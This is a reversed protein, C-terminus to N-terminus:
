GLNLISTLEKPCDIGYSAIEFIGTSSELSDADVQYTFYGSDEQAIEDAYMSYKKFKIAQVFNDELSRNFIYLGVMSMKSLTEFVDKIRSPSLVKVIGEYSAILLSLPGLYKPLLSGCWVVEVGSTKKLNTYTSKPHKGMGFIYCSKDSPINQSIRELIYRYRDEQIERSYERLTNKHRPSREITKLLIEGM